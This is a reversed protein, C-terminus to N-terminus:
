RCLVELDSVYLGEITLNNQNCSSNPNKAFLRLYGCPLCDISWAIPDVLLRGTTRDKVDDIHKDGIGLLGNLHVVDQCGGFACIPVGSRDAAVFRMFNFGSEHKEDLPIIVVSDISSLTSLVRYDVEQVDNFDEKSMDFITM